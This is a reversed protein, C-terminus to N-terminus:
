WPKPSERIRKNSLSKVTGRSSITAIGQPSHFVGKPLPSTSGTRRARWIGERRGHPPIEPRHLPSATPAFGAAASSDKFDSFDARDVQERRGIVDLSPRRSHTPLDAEGGQHSPTRQPTETNHNPENTDQSRSHGHVTNEMDPDHQRYGRVHHETTAKVMRMAITRGQFGHGGRFGCIAMALVVGGPLRPVRAVVAALGVLTALMGARERTGVRGLATVQQDTRPTNKQDDARGRRRSRAPSDRGVDRHVPGTRGKRQM